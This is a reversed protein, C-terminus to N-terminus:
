VVVVSTYCVHLPLDISKLILLEILGGKGFPRVLALSILAHVTILYTIVQEFVRAHM